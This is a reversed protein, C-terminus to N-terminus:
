QFELIIQACAARLISNTLPRVALYLFVLLELLNADASFYINDTPQCPMIICIVSNKNFQIDAHKYTIITAIFM